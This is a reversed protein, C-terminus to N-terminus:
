TRTGYPFVCVCVGTERHRQFMHIDMLNELNEALTYRGLGTLKDASQISKSQWDTWYLKDEHVTLGFPHPLQSGILVQVPCSFFDSSHSKCNNVFTSEMFHFAMFAAKVQRDSGDFNGYEITKMGADAWYLRKTEYDIALGNPWTLNSSIIVIRSSSDMGAREIKPNAGWDTWYM